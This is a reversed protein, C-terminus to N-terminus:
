DIKHITSLDVESGILSKTSSAIIIGHCGYNWSGLEYISTMYVLGSETLVLPSSGEINDQCRGDASDKINSEINACAQEATKTDSPHNKLYTRVANQAAYVTGDTDLNYVSAPDVTEGSSLDFAAGLLIPQNKSKWDTALRSDYIGAINGKLYTISIDRGLTCLADEGDVQKLSEASTPYSSTKKATTEEATKIASNIQESADSKNSSTLQDYTWKDTSKKGPSNYPNTPAEIYNYVKNISCKSALNTEKAQNANSSQSSDAQSTDVTTQEQAQTPQNAANFGTCISYSGFIIGAAVVICAVVIGAKAIPSTKGQQQKDKQSSNALRASNPNEVLKSEHESQAGQPMFAPEVRAGCSTCFKSDNPIEKGCTTCYM